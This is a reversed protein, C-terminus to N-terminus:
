PTELGLAQELHLRRAVTQVPQSPTHLRIGKQQRQAEKRICLLIQLAATDLETLGSLDISISEGMELAANLKELAEEREAPTINGGLRVRAGEAKNSIMLRM